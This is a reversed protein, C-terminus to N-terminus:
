TISGEAQDCESQRVGAPDQGTGAPTVTQVGGIRHRDARPQPPRRPERYFAHGGPAWWMKPCKENGVKAM